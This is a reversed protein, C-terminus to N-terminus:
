ISIIEERMQYQLYNIFHYNFRCVFLEDTRTYLSPLNHVTVYILNKPVIIKRDKIRVSILLTANYLQYIILIMM